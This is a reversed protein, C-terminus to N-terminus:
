DGQIMPATGGVAREPHADVEESWLVDGTM